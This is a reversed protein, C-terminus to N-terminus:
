NKQIVLEGGSNFEPTPNYPSVRFHMEGFSIFQVGPFLSVQRQVGIRQDSYRRGHSGFVQSAVPM